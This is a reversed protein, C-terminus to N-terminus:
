LALQTELAMIVPAVRTRDNHTSNLYLSRDQSLPSSEHSNKSPRNVPCPQIVRTVHCARTNTVSFGLFM